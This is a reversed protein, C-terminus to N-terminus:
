INLQEDNKKDIKMGGFRRDKSQFASVAETLDKYNFDPWLKPSFFLESYSIQWLMFNSLRTENGTRILIEPDPLERTDLYSSFLSENIDEPCLVGDRINVAMNKAARVLEDRGGYNLAINVRMGPNKETLDMLYHIKERLDDRIRSLDGIVCIRMNNKKSDDIYRQINEAMLDMLGGVEDRSRTWNETSFAYVTLNKFGGENMAESLKRLNEAGARHGANRPLLRKSAWRGNGDMIIAVHEPLPGALARAGIKKGTKM